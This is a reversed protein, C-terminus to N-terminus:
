QGIRGESIGHNVWHHAAWYYGNAGFANRLDVYRALYGPAWFTPHARRTEYIGNNQFHMMALMENDYSFANKLDGYLSLYYRANFVESRLTPPIIAPYGPATSVKILINEDAGNIVARSAMYVSDRLTIMRVRNVDTVFSTIPRGYVDNSPMAPKTWSNYRANYCMLFDGRPNKRNEKRETQLYVCPLNHHPLELASVGMHEREEDFRIAPGFSYNYGNAIMFSMFPREHQGSCILDPLNDNNMDQFACGMNYKLTSMPASRTLDTLNGFEDVLVLKSDRDYGSFVCLGRMDWKGVVNTCNVNRGKINLNHLVRAEFNAGGRNFLMVQPKREFFGGSATRNDVTSIMISPRNKSGLGVVEVNTLTMRPDPLNYVYSGASSLRLSLGKSDVRDFWDDKGDGDYDAILHRYRLNVIESVSSEPLVSLNIQAHTSLSISSLITALVYRHAFHKM